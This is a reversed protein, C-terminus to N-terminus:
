DDLISNKTENNYWMYWLCVKVRANLRKKKEKKKYKELQEPTAEEYKKKQLQEQREEMAQKRQEKDMDYRKAIAAEKQKPTLKVDKVSDIFYFVLKILLKM